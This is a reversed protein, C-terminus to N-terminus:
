VINLADRGLGLTFALDDVLDDVVEQRKFLDPHRYFINRNGTDPFLDISYQSAPIFWGGRSSTGLSSLRM